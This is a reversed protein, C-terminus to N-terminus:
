KQIIDAIHCIDAENLELHLPLSILKGSFNEANKVDKKCNSYISYTTNAIYHVGCFIQHSALKEMLQDRSESMIQYLHRSSLISPDHKIIQIAGLNSLYKDYLDALKRRYANDQELYKLSVLCMSAM